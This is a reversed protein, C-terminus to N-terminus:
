SAASRRKRFWSNASPTFLLAVAILNVAPQAATLYQWWDWVINSRYAPMSMLTRWRVADGVLGLVVIVVLTIRAWNRGRWVKFLVCGRVALFFLAMAFPVASMDRMSVLPLVRMLWVVAYVVLGVALLLVPVAVIPPIRKLPEIPPTALALPTQPAAYPNDNAM